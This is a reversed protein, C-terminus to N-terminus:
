APTPGTHGLREFLTQWLSIGDSFLEAFVALTAPLQYSCASVFSIAAVCAHLAILIPKKTWADRSLMRHRDILPHLHGPAIDPVPRAHDHVLTGGNNDIPPGSDLADRRRWARM